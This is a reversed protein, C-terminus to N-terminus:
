RVRGIRGREKVEGEALVRKKRGEEAVMCM